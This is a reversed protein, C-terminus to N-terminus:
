LGLGKRSYPAHHTRVSNASETRQMLVQQASSPVRPNKGFIRNLQLMRLLGHVKNMFGLWCVDVKQSLSIIQSLYPDDCELLTSLNSIMMTAQSAGGIMNAIWQFDTIREGPEKAMMGDIVNSLVPPFEKILESLPKAHKTRDAHWALWGFKGQSVVDLFQQEFLHVGLFIEYFVFGLIYSDRLSSEVQGTTDQVIEPSVYKSSSLVVTKGSDPQALTSVEVKGDDRVFINGPNLNCSWGKNARHAEEVAAIVGLLTSTVSGTPAPESSLLRSLTYGRRQGSHARDGYISSIRSTM